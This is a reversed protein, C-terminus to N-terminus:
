LADGEEVVEGLAHLGLVRREQAGLGAVGGRGQVVQVPDRESSRAPDLQAVPEEIARTGGVSRIAGLDLHDALAPHRDDAAARADEGEDM